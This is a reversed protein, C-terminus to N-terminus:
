VSIDITFNKTYMLQLVGGCYGVQLPYVWSDVSLRQMDLVGSTMVYLAGCEM